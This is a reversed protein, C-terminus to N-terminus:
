HGRDCGGGGGWSSERGKKWMLVHGWVPQRCSWLSCFGAMGPARSQVELRRDTPFPHRNNSDGAQPIKNCHVWLALVRGYAFGVTGTREHSAEEM